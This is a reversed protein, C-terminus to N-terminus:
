TSIFTVYPLFSLTNQLNSIAVSNPMTTGSFNTLSTLSLQGNIMRGYTQSSSVSAYQVGLPVASMHQIAVNGVQDMLLSGGGSAIQQILMGVWYQGPSLSVTNGFQCGFVRLAGPGWLASQQTTTTATTTGYSYGTTATSVPYSITGSVSNITHNITFASGSILSLTNGNKSYLGYHITHSIGGQNTSSTTNQSFAVWMENFQVPDLLQVPQFWATNVSAGAAYLRQRTSSGQFYPACYTIPQAAGGAGASVVVTNGTGSLTINNGGSLYLTNATPAVTSNGAVNGILSVGEVDGTGSYSVVLQNSNNQSIVIGGSGNLQVTASISSWSTGTTNTTGLQVINVGDGAGGGSPVSIVVSNGSVGVSAIGEGRFSLASVNGTGQSSQTTNGTAYLNIPDQSQAAYTTIFPPVAMTAGASNTTAIVVLSGNTTTTALNHSHNSLAATTLYAGASQLATTINSALGFSITSGNSSFSLSSAVTLTVNGTSGNLSVMNQTQVSQAPVTASLSLGNTSLTGSLGVIAGATSVGLGAMQSSQRGQLYHANLNAVSNSQSTGLIMPVSGGDFSIPANIEIGVAGAQEIHIPVANTGDAQLHLLHVYPNNASQHIHLGDVKLSSATAFDTAGVIDLEFLGQRNTATTFVSMNTGWQFQVQRSNMFFTKDANPSLVEDLPVNSQSTIGNHSATIQNSGSMGFTIGNSNAFAVTGSTATQTGAAAAIGGGVGAPASMTITSGTLGMTVNGSGNSNGAWVLSMTSNATSNTFGAQNYGDGGGGGAPVSVVVSGNSYGVSAVGAGQFSLSRADVTSSSSQGTTNSVAYLGVTQATQSTLYDTKVTAVLSGNSVSFSVGNSNGFQLTNASTNSNSASFYMPQQTQAPVNPVTYSGVMSGNTSYFSLGNSNGFSVTSFAFSGNSGSVAVPQVSQAPVSPVTYSATLTNGNMGFSIGNANGFSVTGSTALTTGASLGSIGTQAGGVAPVSATITGANMGFTVGNSNAFVVSGSSVSQAGASIVKIVETADPSFTVAHTSMWDSPRVIDTNADDPITISKVHQVTIPM